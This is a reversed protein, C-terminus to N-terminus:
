TQSAECGALSFQALEVGVVHGGHALADFHTEEFALPLEPVVLPVARGHRIMGHKTSSDRIYTNEILM